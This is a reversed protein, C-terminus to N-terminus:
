IVASVTLLIKTDTNYLYIKKKYLFVSVTLAIKRSNQRFNAVTSLNLIKEFNKIQNKKLQGMNKKMSVSFTVYTETNGM